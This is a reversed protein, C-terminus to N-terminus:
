ATRLTRPSAALKEAAAGSMARPHIAPACHGPNSKTDYCAWQNQSTMARGFHPLQECSSWSAGARSDWPTLQGCRSVLDGPQYTGADEDFKVVNTAHIHKIDM